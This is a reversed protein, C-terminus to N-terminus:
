EREFLFKNIAPEASQVSIINTNFLLELAVVQRMKLRLAEKAQKFKDDMVAITDQHPM